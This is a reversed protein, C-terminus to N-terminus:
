INEFINVQFKILEEAPNTISKYSFMAHCIFYWIGGDASVSHLGFLKQTM